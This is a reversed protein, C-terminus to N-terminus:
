YRQLPLLEIVETEIDTVGLGYEGEEDIVIGFEIKRIRTQAPNHRMDNLHKREIASLMAVAKSSLSFVEYYGDQTIATFDGEEAAVANFFTRSNELDETTVKRYQITIGYRALVRKVLDQPFGEINLVKIMGERGGDSDFLFKRGAVELMRRNIESEIGTAKAEIREQQDLLKEAIADLRKIDNATRPSWDELTPVVNSIDEAPEPSEEMEQEVPILASEVLPLPKPNAMAVATEDPSEPIEKPIEEPQTEDLTEGKKQDLEQDPDIEPESTTTAVAEEFELKREEEVIEEEPILPEPIEPLAPSLSMVIQPPPNKTPASSAQIFTLNLLIAALIGLTASIIYSGWREAWHDPTSPEFIRFEQISNKM